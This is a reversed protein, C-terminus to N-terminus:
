YMGSIRTHFHLFFRNTIVGLTVELSPDEQVIPLGINYVDTDPSYLICVISGFVCTENSRLYPLEWREKCM